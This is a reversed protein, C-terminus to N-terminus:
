LVSWTVNHHGYVKWASNARPYEIPPSTSAVARKVDSVPSAAACVAFLVSAVLCYQVMFPM